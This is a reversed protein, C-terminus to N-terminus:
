CNRLTAKQMAKRMEMATAKVRLTETETRNALPHDLLRLSFQGSRDL